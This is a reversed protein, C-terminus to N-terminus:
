TGFAKTLLNQVEAGGSKGLYGTVMPVFKSIVDPSIGLSSLANTLDSMNKLPESLAGLSKATELYQEAGPIMGALKDYESASLKENALSLMSGLGGAAQDESLGLQSQLLGPLSGGLADAAGKVANSSAFGKLSDMSQAAAFIPLLLIVFMLSRLSKM